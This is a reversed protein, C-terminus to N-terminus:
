RKGAFAAADVTYGMGSERSGNELISRARDAAVRADKNRHAASLFRAYAQLIIATQPHNAPLNEDCLRLARSFLQEATETHGEAAELEALTRWVVALRPRDAPKEQYAAAARELLPRAEGPHGTELLMAGWDHLVAGLEHPGASAAARAYLKAAEAYHKRGHAAEALGHLVLVADPALENARRYSGEAREFQGRSLYLAGLNELSSALEATRAPHYGQWISIARRYLGEADFDLGLERDVEALNHLTLPLKWDGPGLREAERLAPEFERAAGTFQGARHLEEGRQFHSDWEDQATLLAPALLLAALWRM